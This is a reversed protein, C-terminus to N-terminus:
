LQGGKHFLNSQTKIRELIKLSRMSIALYRDSKVRIREALPAIIGFNINMPQFNSPEATSIYNGLAGIATEIPFDPVPEELLKAALSLGAMLGSAASEVYGEVGTMQGAFYLTEQGKVSFDKNLLTPANLYTNRHMVGYRVFEAQELGPIM